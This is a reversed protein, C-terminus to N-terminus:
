YINKNVLKIKQAKFGKLHMKLTYILLLIIKNLILIM